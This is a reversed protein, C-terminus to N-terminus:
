QVYLDLPDQNGQHARETALYRGLKQFVVLWWRGKGIEKRKYNLENEM